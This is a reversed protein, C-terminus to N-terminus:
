SFQELMRQPPADQACELGPTLGAPEPRELREALAPVFAIALVVVAAAAAFATM